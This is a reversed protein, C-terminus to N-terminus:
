RHRERALSRTHDSTLLPVSPRRQRRTDSLIMKASSSSRKLSPGQTTTTTWATVPSLLSDDASKKKGHAPKIQTFSCFFSLDEVRKFIVKPHHSAAVTPSLRHM